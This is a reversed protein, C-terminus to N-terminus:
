CNAIRALWIRKEKKGSYRQVLSWVANLSPGSFALCALTQAHQGTTIIHPYASYIMASRTAFEWFAAIGLLSMSAAIFAFVAAMRGGILVCAIASSVDLAAILLYWNVGVSAADPLFAGSNVALLATLGTVLLARWDKRNLFLALLVAANGMM